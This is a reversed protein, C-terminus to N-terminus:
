SLRLTEEFKLFLVVLNCVCIYCKGANDGILAQTVLVTTVLM